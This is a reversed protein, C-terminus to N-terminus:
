HTEVKTVEQFLHDIRDTEKLENKILTLTIEESYSDLPQEIFFQFLKKYKKLVFEYDQYLRKLRETVNKREQPTYDNAKAKLVIATAM